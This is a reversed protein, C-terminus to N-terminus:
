ADKGHTDKLSMFKQVDVLVESIPVTKWGFDSFKSQYEIEEANLFAIKLAEWGLEASAIIESNEAALEFGAEPIPWGHEQLLALLGHLQDDTIEKVAEWSGEPPEEEKMGAAEAVPEEFLKITDYANAKNGESTVFYSYPLFQYFNYLRLFGNWSLQFGPKGKEDNDDNLCCGVRVGLPEGPSVLAKKEVVVYQRLFKNGDRGAHDYTGYLCSESFGPCDTEKMKDTMEEPLLPELSQMWDKVAVADDYRKADIHMLAAVFMFQRWKEDDPNELFHILLDFSNYKIYKKFQSLGYGSLLDKFNGGSPLGAPDMYDEFFSKLSKFKNEVDHWTLSWIHFKGSQVIAMRQAMDQGIRNHHFTFGDLFLAIPKVGDSLRASRIVFDARSHVSVGNLEGLEVQPEIYYARDGVKLFYGPKGNVLDNKLMLPLAASRYLKLAGIFRAELESEIFTNFPIDSINETKVLNERYSLIEALLEIATDRSTEPM